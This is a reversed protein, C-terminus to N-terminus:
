SNFFLSFTSYYNQGDDTGMELEYYKTITKSAFPVVKNSNSSDSVAANTSATNNNSAVQAKEISPMAHANALSLLIMVALTIAFVTIAIIKTM